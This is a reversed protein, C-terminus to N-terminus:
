WRERRSSSIGGLRAAAFTGDVSGDGDEDVGGRSSGQDAGAEPLAPVAPLLPDERFWVAKHMPTRGGEVERANLAAGADLLASLISEPGQSPALPTLHEGAGAELMRSVVTPEARYRLASHLPARGDNSEGFPDAGRDPVKVVKMGAFYTDGEEVSAATMVARYTGGMKATFAVVPLYDPLTDCDVPDGAPDYVCIDVDARFSEAAGSVLYEEGAKAPILVERSDGVPCRAFM